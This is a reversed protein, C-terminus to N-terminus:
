RAPIELTVALAAHDSAKPWRWGVRPFRELGHLSLALAERRNLAGTVWRPGEGPVRQAAGRWPVGWPLGRREVHPVTRPNARRLAPSILVYDLQSFSGEQDFWHTWREIPPLDDLVNVAFTSDLLPAVSLDDWAAAVGNKHAFDNLDGAIVYLADDRARGFRQAVLHKVALAEAFRLPATYARDTAFSPNLTTGMSKFHVVFVTVVRDGAPVDVSLCGRRFVYDEPQPYRLQATGHPSDRYRDLTRALMETWAGEVERYRIDTVNRANEIPVRSLIAVDIGRGDNGEMLKLFRYAGDTLPDLYENRFQRLVPEAEVEQLCLVDADLAALTLACLQRQEHETVLHLAELLSEPAALKERRLYRLPGDWALNGDEFRTPLTSLLNELNFTAVRLKM